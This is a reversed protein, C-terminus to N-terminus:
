SRDFSLRVGQTAAFERSVDRAQFSFPTTGSLRLSSRKGARDGHGHCVGCNKRRSKRSPISGRKLAVATNRIVGDSEAKRCLRHRRPLTVSYLLLCFRETCQRSVFLTGYIWSFYCSEFNCLRFAIKKQLRFRWDM